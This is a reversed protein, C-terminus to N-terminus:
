PMGLQGLKSTSDMKVSRMMGSALGISVGAEAAFMSRLEMAARM